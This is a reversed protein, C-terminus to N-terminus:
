FRDSAGLPVGDQSISCPDEFYLVLALIGLMMSMVDVPRGRDELNTFLGLCNYSINELNEIANIPVHSTALCRWM